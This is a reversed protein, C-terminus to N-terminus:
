MFNGLTIHEAKWGGVEVVRSERPASGDPFPLLRSVDHREIRERQKLGEGAERSCRPTPSPVFDKRAEPLVKSTAALHDMMEATM